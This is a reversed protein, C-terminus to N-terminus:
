QRAQARKGVARRLLREARRGSHFGRPRPRPWVDRQAGADARRFLAERYSHGERRHRFLSHGGHAAPIRQLRTNVGVLGVHSANKPGRKLEDSEDFGQGYGLPVVITNEAQGFSVLVPIELTQGNVVLSIMPSTRNQAEDDPSRSAFPTELQIIQDYIGLEKATKPAVLAVNHWTLKSIPDPAEQLWGNDIWRGDFISSDTAFIVELSDKTPVARLLHLLPMFARPAPTVARISLTGALFGHRLLPKWLM